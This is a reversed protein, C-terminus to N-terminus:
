HAALPPAAATVRDRWAALFSEASPGARRAWAHLSTLDAVTRRTGDATRRLVEVHGFALPGGGLVILSATTEGGDPPM